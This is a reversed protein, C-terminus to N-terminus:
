EKILKNISRLGDKWLVQMFYMGNPYNTLNIKVEQGSNDFSSIEQIVSGEASLIRVKSVADSGEIRFEGNSPNPYVTINQTLASKNATYSVRNVSIKGNNSVASIELSEQDEGTLEFIIDSQEDMPVGPIDFKVSYRGAPLNPIEFEGNEDTELYAVLSGNELISKLSFDRSSGALARVSVGTSSVRRRPLKREGEEFEEELFGSFSSTGTLEQPEGEMTVELNEMTSRLGIVEALEWDITNPFYSNLLEPYESEDNDVYLVYDGLAVNPVEFVGESQVDVFFNNNELRVSDFAQGEQFKFLYIQGSETPFDNVDAVSGRINATAIVQVPNSVLKFEPDVSNVVDNRVELQYEGMNGYTLSDISIMSSDESSIVEGNRFWRYTNNAGDVTHEISVESGQPLRQDAENGFNAQDDFILGEISINVELDDYGLANGSVDLSALNPLSTLDSLDEIANNSLDILRLGLVENLINPVSGTLNNEPLNIEVVRNEEVVIDQNDASWETPNDSSTDWSISSWGDGNLSDYFQRLARVDRELSSVKLETVSSSLTLDGLADNSVEVYYFGEDARQLNNFILLSDIAGDMQVSDKYWQFTNSSATADIEMIIDAGLFDIYDNPLSYSFNQNGYTFNSVVSFAELQEFSLNNGSVNLDVLQTALGSIAALGAIENDSIDIATIFNLNAMDAPLSDNLQNASLAISKVSDYDMEVGYWTNVKGSLWNTNNSWNAGNNSEYLSVLALSDQEFYNAVPLKVSDVTSYASTDGSTTISRLYIYYLSSYSPAIYNVLSDSQVITSDTIANSNVDNTTGIYIQYEDAGDITPWDLTFGNSNVNSISPVPAEIDPLAVTLVNSFDSSDGQANISRGFVYYEEFPEPVNFTLSTDSLYFTSDSALSPVTDNELSIFIKYETALDVSDWAIDFSSSTINLSSLVPPEIADSVQYYAASLQGGEQLILFDKFGDNNLDLVDFDAVIGGSYQVTFDEILQGSGDNLFVHLAASDQDSVILDQFGDGDIDEADMKAPTFSLPVTTIDFLQTGNNFDYIEIEDTMQNSAVVQDFGNNFLSINKIEFIQDSLRSNNSYFFTTDQNYLDLIGLSSENNVLFAIDYNDNSIYNGRIIQNLEKENPELFPLITKAIPSCDTIGGGEGSLISSSSSSEFASFVADTIGDYDTDFILFDNYVTESGVDGDGLPSFNGNGDNSYYIIGNDGNHEVAFIVDFGLDGDINSLQLKFDSPNLVFGEPNLSFEQLTTAGSLNNVVTVPVYNASVIMADFNDDSDIQGLEMKTQGLAVTGNVNELATVSNYNGSALSVPNTYSVTFQNGGYLIKNEAYTVEINGSRAGEPVTVTLSTATNSQVDARKGGIYVKDSASAFPGSLNLAVNEGAAAISTSLSTIERQYYFPNEGALNSALGLRATDAVSFDYEIGSQFSSDTSGTNGLSSGDYFNVLELSTFDTIGEKLPNLIIPEFTAAVNIDSLTSTIEWYEETRDRALSSSVILSDSLGCYNNLPFIRVLDSTQFEENDSIRIQRLGDDQGVPFTFPTNGIKSVVGRIYSDSDVGIVSANEGFVVEEYRINFLDNDTLLKGNVFSLEGKIFISSALEGDSQLINLAAKNSEKEADDAIDIGINNYIISDQTAADYGTIEQYGVGIFVLNSQDAFNIKGGRGERKFNYYVLLETNGTFNVQYKGNTNELASLIFSGSFITSNSIDASFPQSSNFNDNYFFLNGEVDLNVGQLNVNNDYLQTSDSASQRFSMENGVNVNLSDGNNIAALKLQTGSGPVDKNFVLDNGVDLQASNGVDTFIFVGVSDGLQSGVVDKVNINNAVNLAGNNIWLGTNSVEEFNGVINVANIDFDEGANISVKHYINVASDAPPVVGSAWTAPNSWDGNAVTNIYLPDTQVEVITTDSNTLKDSDSWIQLYYTTAPALGTVGLEGVFSGVTAPNYAPLFTSFGDESILVKYDFSSDGISNTFSVHLSDSFTTFEVSPTPLPEPEILRVGMLGSNDGNRDWLRVFVEEGQPLGGVTDKQHSEFRNSCYFETLNGCTGTYVSFRTELAQDSASLIDYAEGFTEVILAGNNPVQTKVWVDSTGASFISDQGCPIGEGSDTANFYPIWEISSPAISNGFPIVDFSSATNCNQNFAPGLSAHTKLSVHFEANIFEPLFVKLRYTGSALSDFSFAKRINELAARKYVVEAEEGCNEKKELEVYVPYSLDYNGIEILIREQSALSFDYFLSDGFTEFIEGEVTQMSFVPNQSPPNSSSRSFISDGDVTLTYADLCSTNQPAGFYNISLTGNTSDVGAEVSNNSVVIYYTSGASLSQTIELNNTTFGTSDFAIRTPAADYCDDFLQLSTKVAESIGNLNIVYDESILPTFQFIKERGSDFLPSSEHNNAYLSTNADRNTGTEITIPSFCDDGPREGVTFSFSEELDMEGESNSENNPSSNRLVFGDSYLISFENGNWGDGYADYAEFRYESNDTLCFTDRVISASLFGASTSAVLQETGVEYLEWYVEEPFSGLPNVEVIVQTQGAGCQGFTQSQLLVGIILILLFRKM